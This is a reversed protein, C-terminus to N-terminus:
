ITSIFLFSFPNKKCANNVLACYLYFQTCSVEIWSDTRTDYTEFFPINSRKSSGIAFLIEHPIRPRAIKPTPIKKDTKVIVKIKHLITEKVM